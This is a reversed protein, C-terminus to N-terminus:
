PRTTTRHHHYYANVLAWILRHSLPSELLRPATLKSVDSSPSIMAIMTTQQVNHYFRSHWNWIGLLEYSLNTSPFRVKANGGLSEKLLWTLTSDRYPM